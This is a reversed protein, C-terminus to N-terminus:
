RYHQQAARRVSDLPNVDICLVVVLRVGTDLSPPMKLARKLKGSSKGRFGGFIFNIVGM